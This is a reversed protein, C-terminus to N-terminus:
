VPYLKFKLGGSPKQNLNFEVVKRSLVYLFRIRQDLIMAAKSAFVVEEGWGVGVLHQEHLLQVVAAAAALVAEVVDVKVVLVVVVLVLSVLVGLPGPLCNLFM